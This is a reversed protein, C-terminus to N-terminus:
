QTRGLARRLLERGGAQVRQATNANRNHVIAEAVRRVADASLAVPASNRESEDRSLDDARQERADDEDMIRVLDEAQSRSNEDLLAELDALHDALTSPILIRGGEALDYAVLDDPDVDGAVANLVDAVSVGAARATEAAGVLASLDVRDTTTRPEEGLDGLLMRYFRSVAPGVEAARGALAQKDAGLAVISAEEGQWRKYFMPTPWVDATAQYHPHSEPLGSRPVAEIPDWRISLGRVHRKSVMLAVDRRIDALAGEGEMEISGHARVAPVGKYSTKEFARWSGATATPDNYHSLLMPMSKDFRGGKISLIHGDSAEGETAIIGSFEGTTATNSLDADRLHSIRQLM